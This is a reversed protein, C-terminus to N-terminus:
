PRIVGIPFSRRGSTKRDRQLLPSSGGRFHLDERLPHVEEVVLDSTTGFLHPEDIPELRRFFFVQERLPEPFWQRRLKLQDSHSLFGSQGAKARARKVCVAGQTSHEYDAMPESTDPIRTHPSNSGWSRQRKQVPKLEEIQSRDRELRLMQQCTIIETFLSRAAPNGRFTLKAM